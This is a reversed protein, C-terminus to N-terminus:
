VARHVGAEWMVDETGHSVFAQSGTARSEGACGCAREWAGSEHAWKRRPTGVQTGKLCRLSLVDVASHESEQQLVCASTVPDVHSRSRVESAVSEAGVTLPRSLEAPCRRDQTLQVGPVLALATCCTGPSGPCALAPFTCVPARLSWLRM